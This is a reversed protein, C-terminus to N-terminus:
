RDGEPFVHGELALRLMSASVPGDRWVEITPEISAVTSASGNRPGGDVLGACRPHGIILEDVDRPACAAPQGHRNASSVLLPGCEALIALATADNPQRVGVTGDRGLDSRTTPTVVTLPGPWFSRAVREMARTLTVGVDALQDVNAVLVPLARDSPRAKIEYLADAADLRAAVGYVTDTPIVVVSGARLAEVAEDM